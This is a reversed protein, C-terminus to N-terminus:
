RDIDSARKETKKMRTLVEGLRLQLGVMMHVQSLATPRCNPYLNLPYLYAAVRRPLAARSRARSRRCCGRNSLRSSRVTGVEVMLTRDRAAPEGREVALPWLSIAGTPAM